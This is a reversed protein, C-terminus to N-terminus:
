SRALRAVDENNCGEDVETTTTTTASDILLSLYTDQCHVHLLLMNHFYHRPTTNSKRDGNWRLLDIEIIKRM